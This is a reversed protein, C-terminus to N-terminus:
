SAGLMDLLKLKVSWRTRQWSTAQRTVSARYFSPCLEAAQAIEGCLSCAVCSKDIHATPAEKLPDTSAKLTLSPCGNLRMCSHDGTCLVDDVGLRASRTSRGARTAVAKAQNSRRKKALMCENASIVVRIGQGRADLAAVIQQRTENVDYSDVRRIWTAEM